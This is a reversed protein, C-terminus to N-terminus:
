SGVVPEAVPPTVPAVVPEVPAASAGSFLAEFEAGPMESAMAILKGPDNDFRERVDPPLAMFRDRAGEIRDLASQFDSIGTFDGYVGSAPGLPLERTLGFRRMITNIDVEDRLHQQVLSESGTFTSTARSHQAADYSRLSVPLAFTVAEREIM